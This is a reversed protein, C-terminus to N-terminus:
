NYFKCMISIFGNVVLTTLWLLLKTSLINDKDIKWELFETTSYFFHIIRYRYLKKEFRKRDNRYSQINSPLSNFTKVGSFSVGKQVCSLVHLYLHNINRTDLEQIYANILFDKQNDEIFLMLSLIYQCAIPLIILKRFLSRCSETADSPKWSSGDQCAPFIKTGGTTQGIISSLLAWQFVQFLCHLTWGQQLSSASVTFATDWLSLIKPNCARM